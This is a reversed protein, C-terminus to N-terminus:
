ADDRYVSEQCSYEPTATSTNENGRMRQEASNGRVEVESLM